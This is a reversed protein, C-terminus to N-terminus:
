STTTLDFAHALRLTTCEGISEAALDSVQEGFIQGSTFVSELGFVFPLSESRV